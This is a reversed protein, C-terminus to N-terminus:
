ADRLNMIAVKSITSDFAPVDNGQDFRRVDGMFIQSRNREASFLPRLRL